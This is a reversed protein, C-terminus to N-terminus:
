LDIRSFSHSTFEKGKIPSKEKIFNPVFDMKDKFWQRNYDGKPGFLSEVFHEFGEMRASLELLNVSEGFLDVTYNLNLQRPLYSDTSFIVNSDSNIGFNYEDFFLSHEYNRSFKRFDLKYKTGLDGDILLGQVEVWVPSSAKGLNTLHSWVYSGVQNVEEDQLVQKIEQIVQYDPCRMVQLYSAIRIETNITFNKYTEMFYDQTNKCDLRRHILITELRIELPFHNDEIIQYLIDQFEENIVGVNGLGKIAVMLAERDPRTMREKNMLRTIRGELSELMKVISENEICEEHYKCFTHAVATPTLTFDPNPNDRGYEMLAYAADVMEEDPRVLFALSTMWKSVTEKPVLGKVIQDKMVQVSASSSIYPLSDLVHNRPFYFFNLKIKLLEKM